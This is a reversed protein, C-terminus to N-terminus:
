EKEMWDLYEKESSFKTKRAKMKLLKVFANKDKVIPKSLVLYKNSNILEENRLFLKEMEEDVIQRLKREITTDLEMGSIYKDEGIYISERKSCFGYKHELNEQFNYGKFHM